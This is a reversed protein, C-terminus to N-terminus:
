LREVLQSVVHIMDQEARKKVQEFPLNLYNTVVIENVGEAYAGDAGEGMVGVVAIVKIGAKKARRAVGIVVKGRLSQYDLKGEGTIVYDAGKIIENFNVVDLV